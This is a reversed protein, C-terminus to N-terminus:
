GASELLSLPGDADGSTAESTDTALRVDVVQGTLTSLLVDLAARAVRRSELLSDLPEDGFANRRMPTATREPNICNVRVGLDAWEDALGQTLNVV